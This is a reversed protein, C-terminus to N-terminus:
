FVLRFLGYGVFSLILAGPIVIPPVFWGETWEEPPVAPQTALLAPELAVSRTAEAGGKKLTFEGCGAGAM